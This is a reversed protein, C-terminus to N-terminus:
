SVKMTGDSRIEWLLPELFDSLLSKLFFFFEVVISTMEIKDSSSHKCVFFESFM